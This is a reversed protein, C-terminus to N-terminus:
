GRCCRCRNQPWYSCSWHVVLPVSTSLACRGLHRIYWVKAGEIFHTFTSYVAYKTHSYQEGLCLTISVRDWYLTCSFDVDKLRKVIDILLQRHWRRIFCKPSQTSAHSLSLTFIVVSLALPGTAMYWSYFPCPELCFEAKGSPISSTGPKEKSAKM